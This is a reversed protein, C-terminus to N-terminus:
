ERQEQEISKEREQTKEAFNCPTSVIEKGSTMDMINITIQTQEPPHIVQVEYIHDAVSAFELTGTCKSDTDGGTCDFPDFPLCKFRVLEELFEGVSYEPSDWLYDLDISHEGPLIHCGAFDGCLAMIGQQNKSDLRRINLYGQSATKTKLTALQDEPLEEGEYEKQIVTGCGSLILPVFILIFLNRFM